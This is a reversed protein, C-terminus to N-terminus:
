FENMNEPTLWGDAVAATPATPFDPRGDVGAPVDDTVLPDLLVRGGRLEWTASLLFTPFNENWMVLWLLSLSLPRVDATASDPSGAM